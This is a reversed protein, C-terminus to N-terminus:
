GVWATTPTVVYWPASRGVPSTATLASQTQQRGRESGAFEPLAAEASRDRPPPMAMADIHIM